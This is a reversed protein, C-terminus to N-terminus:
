PTATGYYDRRGWGANLIVWQQSKGTSKMLVLMHGIAVNDFNMTQLKKFGQHSTLKRGYPVHRERYNHILSAM